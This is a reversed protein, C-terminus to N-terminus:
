GAELGHHSKLLVEAVAFDIESDINVSKEFPLVYPVSFASGYRRRRVMIEERRLAYIAGARLFARPLLDQRRSERPEPSCFDVLRGDEIKKIRAPHADGVEAVAIVSDAGSEALLKVCADIDESSKFPNTAMLEVIFDYPGNGREEMWEVAHVLADASTAEDSALYPPRLFPAKAGLDHAIAQITESDTSVVYDTLMRSALAQEITYSILPRGGLHRSNKGSVRKSGGRALTIGLVKM